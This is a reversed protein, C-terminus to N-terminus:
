RYEIGGSLVMLRLYRRNTIELVKNQILDVLEELGIKLFQYSFTVFDYNCIRMGTGDKASIHLDSYDDLEESSMKDIKNAVQIVTKTSDINLRQLTDKM